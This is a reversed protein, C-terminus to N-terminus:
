AQPAAPFDSRSVTSPVWLYISYLPTLHKFSAFDIVVQVQFAM